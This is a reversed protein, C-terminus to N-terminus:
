AKNNSNTSIDFNGGSVVLPVNINTGLKLTGSVLNISYKPSSYGQFPAVPSTSFVELIPTQDVGKDIWFDYFATTANISVINNTAGKFTIRAAGQTNAANAANNNLDITGSNILDGFITLNHLVNFASVGLSCGASNKLSGYIIITRVTANNGINLANTGANQTNSLILDGNITLDNNLTCTYTAGAVNDKTIMLNNFTNAPSSPM